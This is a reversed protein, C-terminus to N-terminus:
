PTDTSLLVLPLVTSHLWYTSQILRYHKLVYFLNLTELFQTDTAWHSRFMHGHPQARNLPGATATLRELSPLTAAKVPCHIEVPHHHTLAKTHHIYIFHLIKLDRIILLEPYISVLHVILSRWDLIYCIYYTKFLLGDDPKLIFLDIDYTTGWILILTFPAMMHGFLIVICYRCTKTKTLPYFSTFGQIPEVDVNLVWRSPLKIHKTYCKYQYQTECM